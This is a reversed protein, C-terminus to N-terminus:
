NAYEHIDMFVNFFSPFDNFNRIFDVKLNSAPTIQGDKQSLLLM